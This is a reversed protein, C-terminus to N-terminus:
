GKPLQDLIRRVEDPPFQKPCIATVGLARIAALKAPDAETTVMVIPVSATAPNQKLYGVLSRGDMLPMNYDTV